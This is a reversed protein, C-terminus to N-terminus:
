ERSADSFDVGVLLRRPLRLEGQIKPVVLVPCPATRVVRESVSGLFVHALSAHGHRGVVILSARGREAVAPLIRSAPGQEFVATAQIGRSRIGETLENLKERVRERAQDLLSSLLHDDSIADLPLGTPNWAYVVQLEAQSRAALIAAYDLATEAAESFDTGVVIPHSQVSM